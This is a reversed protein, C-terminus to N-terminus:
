GKLQATVALPNTLTTNLNVTGDAQNIDNKTM